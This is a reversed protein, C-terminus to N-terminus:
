LVEGLVIGGAVWPGRREECLWESWAVRCRCGREMLLVGLSGEIM